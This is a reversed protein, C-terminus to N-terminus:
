NWEDPYHKLVPQILEDIQPEGINILIGVSPTHRQGSFVCYIFIIDRSTNIRKPPGKTSNAEHIHHRLVRVNDFSYACGHIGYTMVVTIHGGM